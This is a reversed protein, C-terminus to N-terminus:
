KNLSDMIAFIIEKNNNWYELANCDMESIQEDTFNRWENNSYYRCGIRTSEKQVYATYSESQFVSLNAGSLNVGCLDAGYLDAGSLDAGSLYAGRLNAWRLDAKEGGKDDLWKKHDDLIKKIEEQTYNKM